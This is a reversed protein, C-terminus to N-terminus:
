TPDAPVGKGQSWAAQLNCTACIHRFRCSPFSCRGKNWSVCIRELTEHRVPRRELLEKIYQGAQLAEQWPLSVRVAGWSQIHLSLSSCLLPPLILSSSRCPVSTLQTTQSMVYNASKALALGTHSSLLHM